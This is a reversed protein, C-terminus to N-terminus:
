EAKGSEAKQREKEAKKQKRKGASELAKVADAETLDYRKMLRTIVTDKSRSKILKELSELRDELHNNDQTPYAPAEPASEVSAPQSDTNPSEDVQPNVYDGGELITVGPVKSLDVADAPQQYDQQSVPQEVSESVPMAEPEVSENVQQTEQQYQNGSREITAPQINAENLSPDTYTSSIQNQEALKKENAARIERNIDVVPIKQQHGGQGVVVFVDTAPVRSIQKMRHLWQLVNEGNRFVTKAAYSMFTTHSQLERNQIMEELQSKFDFEMTQLDVVLSHEYDIDRLNESTQVYPSLILVRRAQRSKDSFTIVAEGIFRDLM